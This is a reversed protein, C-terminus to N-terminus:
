HMSIYKELIKPVVGLYPLGFKKVARASICKLELKRKDSLIMCAEDTEAMGMATKGDKNVFDHHAGRDLLLELMDTLFHIEDNSNPVFTVARHLPTNGNNNVVNVNFGENLLLKVTEVLADTRHSVPKVFKHLLSDGLDESTLPFLKQLLASLCSSKGEKHLKFKAVTKVLIATSDFLWSPDEKLVKQPDLFYLEDRLWSGRQVKFEVSESQLGLNQRKEYELATQELLELIHNQKPPDVSCVKDYLLHTIKHLDYVASQNCSQAIEIAHRSLKTCLFFDDKFYSYTVGRIPGLLAANNTGLIRERIMLSEMLIANRDHEIWVLDELTQSEKRNQYAEVPEKPQKLLPHSPDAFREEMGHKMYQFGMEIEEANSIFTGCRTALSAGLLELADIRQEKTCEPRAILDHLLCVNPLNSALLLPTLGKNNYLQSAGLSLLKHVVESSNGNVAYHLASDGNKDQLDMNAGHEALLSIANMNGHLSAKMLPTCNNSTCANVDFGNRILCSMVDDCPQWVCSDVAYHLATGGNKDQLDMNAGHEILFTVANVHCYRSAIMLPTCNDNTTANIDAGNEALCSLVDLHGHSAAVFLPTCGRYTGVLALEHGNDEDDGERCEIDAKYKLLVKVCDVNGNEAAVILPTVKHLTEVEEEMDHKHHLFADMKKKTELASTRESSNLKQLLKELLVADGSWVAKFIKRAPDDPHKRRKVNATGM